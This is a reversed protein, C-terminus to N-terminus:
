AGTQQGFGPSAPEDTSLAVGPYHRRIAYAAVSRVAEAEDATRCWVREAQVADWRGGPPRHVAVVACPRPTRRPVYVAASVVDHMNLFTGNPLRISTVDM